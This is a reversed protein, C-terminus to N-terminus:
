REIGVGPEGREYYAEITEGASQPHEIRPETEVGRDQEVLRNWLEYDVDRKAIYRDGSGAEQGALAKFPGREPQNLDFYVGGQELQTGAKVIPLRALEDDTLQPLRAVVSKDEGAPRSEDAHQALTQAEIMARRGLEEPSADDDTLGPTRDEPANPWASTRWEDREDVTGELNTAGDILAFHRHASPAVPHLCSRRHLLGALSPRLRERAPM